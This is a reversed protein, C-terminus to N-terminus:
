EIRNHAYRSWSRFFKVSRSGNESGAHRQLKLTYSVRPPQIEHGERRLPGGRLKEVCLGALPQDGLGERNSRWSISCSKGAPPAGCVPM